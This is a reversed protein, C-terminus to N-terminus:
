SRITSTGGEPRTEAGPAPAVATAEEGSDTITGGARLGTIRRGEEAAAVPDDAQEEDV